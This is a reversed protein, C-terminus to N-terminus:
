VGAFIIYNTIITPQVINHASATGASANTISIGTTATRTKNNVSHGGAGITPDAAGGTLGDVLNEGAHFHGPDTLSNSHTHTLIVNNSELGGVAALAAASTGFYTATLRSAASGGMDDKGAIVRGRLDPVNFHTGDAAGYTTGIATFLDPYSARLLSQGYCLLYGAPASSGGYPFIVGAPLLVFGAQKVAGAAEIDGTAALDGTVTAGTAAVDVIKTGGVTIGYNNSGIRYAGTDVDSGFTHSPAAATGSSAKLPGTMTTQGDAAVSNTIESAIDDWNQNHGAATISNGSVFTNVKTYVGSGNRSM